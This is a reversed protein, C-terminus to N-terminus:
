LVYYENSIPNICYVFEEAAAAKSPEESKSVCDVKTAIIQLCFYILMVESKRCIIVGLLEDM